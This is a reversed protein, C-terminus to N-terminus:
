KLYTRGKKLIWKNENEWTKYNNTSTGISANIAMSFRIYNTYFWNQYKKLKLLYYQLQEILSATYIYRSIYIKDLNTLKLDPNLNGVFSSYSFADIYILPWCVFFTALLATWFSPQEINAEKNMSFNSDIYLWIKRTRFDLISCSFKHCEILLSIDIYFSIYWRTIKDSRM